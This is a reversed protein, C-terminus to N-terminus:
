QFSRKVRPDNLVTLAWIGCPLGVMCCPSACPIMCVIVTAMVIGYNQLKMMKTCGFMVFGAILVGIFGTVLFYLWGAWLIWAEESDPVVGPAGAGSGVILSRIISLLGLGLNLFASALLVTAPARIKEEAYERDESKAGKEPKASKKPPYFSSNSM